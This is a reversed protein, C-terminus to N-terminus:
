NVGKVNDLPLDRVFPTPTDWGYPMDDNYVPTTPASHRVSYLVGDRTQKAVLGHKLNNRIHYFMRQEYEKKSLIKCRFYLAINSKEDFYIQNFM